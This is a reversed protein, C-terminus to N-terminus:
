RKPSSVAIATSALLWSGKSGQFEPEFCGMGVSGCLLMRRAGEMFPMFGRGVRCDHLVSLRRRDNKM